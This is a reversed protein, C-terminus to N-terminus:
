NLYNVGSQQKQPGRNMVSFRFDFHSNKTKTCFETYGVTSTAGRELASVSPVRCPGGLPRTNSAAMRLEKRSAGEHSFPAKGLMQRVGRRLGEISMRLASYRCRVGREPFSNFADYNRTEVIAQYGSTLLGSSLVRLM